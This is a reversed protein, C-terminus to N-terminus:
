NLHDNLYKDIQDKHYAALDNLRKEIAKESAAPLNVVNKKMYNWAARVVVHSSDVNNNNFDFKINNKEALDRGTIDSIKPPLRKFTVAQLLNCRSLFDVPINADTDFIVHTVNTSRIRANKDITKINSPIVITSMVSCCSSQTSSNEIIGDSLISDPTGISSIQNLINFEPGIVEIFFAYLEGSTLKWDKNEKGKEILCRASEIPDNSSLAMAMGPDNTMMVALEDCKTDWRSM